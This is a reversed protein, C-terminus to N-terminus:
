CAVKMLEPHLLAQYGNDTSLEGQHIAVIVKTTSVVQNGVKIRVEDPRVGLLLGNKKGLSQFPIFCVQTAWASATVAQQVQIYDAHQKSEYLQKIEMPLIPKVAQYEVVMVPLGTLPDTLGNGTDLLGQLQVQQDSIKITVDRKFQQQWVRKRHVLSGWQGIILIIIIALLIGHWFYNKILQSFTFIQDNYGVSQMFYMSGFVLGGLGFSSLYFYFLTALLQRGPLMGFTILVMLISITLKCIWHLLAYLEPIFVTLTYISGVVAGLLLRWRGPHLKAFKATSWLILFNMVLNGVLVIDLYVVKTM